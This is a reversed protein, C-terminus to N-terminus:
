EAEASPSWVREAGAGQAQEKQGGLCEAEEFGMSLAQSCLEAMKLSKM